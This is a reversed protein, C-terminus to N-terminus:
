SLFKSPQIHALQFSFEFFFCRTPFRLQFYSPPVYAPKVIHSDIKFIYFRSLKLGQIIQVKIQYVSLSNM